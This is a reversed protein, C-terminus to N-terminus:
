FFGTEPIGALYKNTVYGGQSWKSSVSAAHEAFASFIYIYDFLFFLFSSHMPYVKQMTTKQERNNGPIWWLNQLTGKSWQM